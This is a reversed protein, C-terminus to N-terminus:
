HCGGAGNPGCGTCRGCPNPAPESLQSNRRRFAPVFRRALWGTALAVILYVLLDQEM